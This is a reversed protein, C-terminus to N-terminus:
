HTACSLCPDYARVIMELRNLTEEDPAGAAFTRQATETLAANIAMNNHQTAVYLKVGRTFGQADIDYIHVLTGRPAEIIGVGHAEKSEGLVPRVRESLVAEDDLLAQAQEVATMLEMIRALHYLMSGQYPLATVATLMELMKQAQPTAYRGCINLRALPGVRFSLGSKLQPFKMYSFDREEEVILGDYQRPAVSEVVKGAEDIVVLAEADYFGVGNKGKLAMFASRINGAQRGEVDASFAKAVLGWLESVIDVTGSLAAKIQDREAPTLPQMVGGIVPTVPHVARRGVLKTILVGAQRLRAVRRTLEPQTKALFAVNRQEAKLHPAILDPLSLMAVSLTHSEIYNGLHLLERLKHAEPTIQIGLADELAKCSVLAHATYCIGCIRATLRPLEEIPAGVLFREFGRFSKVSLRADSFRNQDDFILQIESHGEIRTVPDITITKSM